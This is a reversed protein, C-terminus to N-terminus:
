GERGQGARRLARSPYTCALSRSQPQQALHVYRRAMKTGTKTRRPTGTNHLERQTRRIARSTGACIYQKTSTHRTETRQRHRTNRRRMIRHRERQERLARMADRDTDTQAGTQKDTKNITVPMCVQLAKAGKKVQRGLAQWRKYTAIPSLQEGRSALQSYALMQNGISYQHFTSYASSIIGPQNVADSLLGSWNVTANSM